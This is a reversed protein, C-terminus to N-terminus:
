RSQRARDPDQKALNAYKKASRQLSRQQMRLLIQKQATKIERDVIAFIYSLLLMLVYAVM